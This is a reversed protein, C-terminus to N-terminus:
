KVLLEKLRFYEKLLFQLKHYDDNLGKYRYLKLPLGSKLWLEIVALQKNEIAWTISRDTYKNTDLGPKLLQRLMEINGYRCHWDIAEGYWLGSTVGYFKELPDDQTLELEDFFKPNKFVVHENGHSDVYIDVLEYRVVSKFKTIPKPESPNHSDNMDNAHASMKFGRCLQLCLPIRKPIGRHIIKTFARLM